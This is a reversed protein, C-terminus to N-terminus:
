AVRLSAEYFRGSGLGDEDIRDARVNVDGIEVRQRELLMDSIEGCGRRPWQHKHRGCGSRCPILCLYEFM